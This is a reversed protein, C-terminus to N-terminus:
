DQRARYTELEGSLLPREELVVETTYAVGDRLYTLEVESEITVARVALLAMEQTDIRVGNVHTIIDGGLIIETGGWMVPWTGGLLGARDAGSGPEITEVLFGTMADWDVQPAGLMQLIAPTTMQGYLGHWPRAVFGTEVLEDIIPRAVAAPIAFGLNEAGAASIGLTMVGIVNGCGDVLPGGSSGPSIAADTQILPSLWSSTTQPLIRGVGSIIGQSITEGVGLPYGLAFVPEGIELARDAAFTVPPRDILWAPLLIALDTTPDAGYIQAPFGFEEDFVVIDHADAVVHYNTLILGDEIVFGTGSRPVVRESVLFPNISLSFVEVVSPSVESFVERADMECDQAHAWSSALLLHAVVGAAAAIGRVVCHM